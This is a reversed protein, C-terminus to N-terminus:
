KITSTFCSMLLATHNNLKEGLQATWFSYPQTQVFILPSGLEWLTQCAYASTILQHHYRAYKLNIADYYSAHHSLYNLNIKDTHVCKLFIYTNNTCSYTISEGAWYLVHPNGELHTRGRWWWQILRSAYITGSWNLDIGRVAAMLCPLMNYYWWASAGFDVQAASHMFAFFISSGLSHLSELDHNCLHM